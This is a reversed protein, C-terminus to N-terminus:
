IATNKLQSKLGLRKSGLGIVKKEIAHKSGRPLAPIVDAKTLLGQIRQSQEGM